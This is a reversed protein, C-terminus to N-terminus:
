YRAQVSTPQPVLVLEATQLQMMVAEKYTHVNATHANLPWVVLVVDFPMRMDTPVNMQVTRTEYCVHEFLFDALRRPGARPPDNSFNQSLKNQVEGALM